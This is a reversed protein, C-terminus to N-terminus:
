SLVSDVEERILDGPMIRSGESIRVGETVIVLEDRSVESKSAESGSAESLSMQSPDQANEFSDNRGIKSNKEIVRSDGGLVLSNEVEVGDEIVNSPLVVSNKVVTNRGVSM